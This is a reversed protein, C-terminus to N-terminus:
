SVEAHMSYGHIALRRFRTRCTEDLNVKGICQFIPRASPSRFKALNDPCAERSARSRVRGGLRAAWAHSGGPGYAMVCAEAGGGAVGGAAVHVPRALGSKAMAWAATSVRIRRALTEQFVYCPTLYRRWDSPLLPPRKCARLRGAKVETSPACPQDWVFIGSWPPTVVVELMQARSFVRGEVANM